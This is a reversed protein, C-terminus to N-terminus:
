RRETTLATTNYRSPPSSSNLPRHLHIKLATSVSKFPPQPISSQSNSTSSYPSPSYPTLYDSAICQTRHTILLSNHTNASVGRRKAQRLHFKTLRLNFKVLRLTFKPRPASFKPRKKLTNKRVVCYFYQYCISLSCLVFLHM